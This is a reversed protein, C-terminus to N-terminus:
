IPYVRINKQNHRVCLPFSEGKKVLIPEPFIHLLPAWCSELPPKNEYILNETFQLLIWKIMGYAKGTKNVQMEMTKIQEKFHKQITFDFRLLELPESLANPMIQKLNTKDIPYTLPKFRSFASLDFGHIDQINFFPLITSIESVLVGEVAIQNPLIVADKKLLRTIADDMIPLINEGLLDSNTIESVLLDAKEPLDVGIQLETSKKLIVSIQNQLNNKLINEQAAQGVTPEMECTYVKKAGARAAMMALLGTGTGIELVISEPKVFMLLAKNYIDNRLKDQIINFHWRPVKKDLVWETHLRVQQNDPEMELAKVAIEEAFEKKSISKKNLQYVAYGFKALEEAFRPQKELQLIFQQIDEPFNSYWQMYVEKSIINPIKQLQNRHVM